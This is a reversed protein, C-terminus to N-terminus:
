VTKGKITKVGRHNFTSVHLEVTLSKIGPKASTLINYVKTYKCNKRIDITQFSEKNIADYQM